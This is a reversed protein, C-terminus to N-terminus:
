EPFITSIMSHRGRIYLNHLTNSPRTFVPDDTFDAIVVPIHYLQKQKPQKMHEIITHQTTMINLLGDPDYSDFYLPNDDTHQVKM